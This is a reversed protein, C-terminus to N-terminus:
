EQIGGQADTLNMYQAILRFVWASAVSEAEDVVRQQLGTALFGCGNWRKGSEEAPSGFDVKSV